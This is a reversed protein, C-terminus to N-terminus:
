QQETDYWTKDTSSSTIDFKLQLELKRGMNVLDVRLNQKEDMVIVMFGVFSFQISLFYSYFDYSTKLFM